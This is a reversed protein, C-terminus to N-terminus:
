EGGGYAKEMTANALKVRTLANNLGRRGSPILTYTNLANTVLKVEATYLGLTDSMDDSYDAGAGEPALGTVRNLMQQRLTHTVWLTDRLEQVIDSRKRGNFLPVIGMTVRHDLALAAIVAPPGPPDDSEPDTPPKGILALANNNAKTVNGQLSVLTTIAAAIQRQNVQQIATALNANAATIPTAAATSLTAAQAVTPSTAEAQAPTTVTATILGFSVAASVVLSVMRAGGRRPKADSVQDPEVGYM